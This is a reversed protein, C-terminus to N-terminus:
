TLRRNSLLSRYAFGVPSVVVIRTTLKTIIKVDPLMPMGGSPRTQERINRRTGKLGKISPLLQWTDHSLQYANLIDTAQHHELSQLLRSPSRGPLDHKM